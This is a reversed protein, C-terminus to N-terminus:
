RLNRALLVACDEPVLVAIPGGNVTATCVEADGSVELIYRTEQTGLASDFDATILVARETPSYTRQNGRYREAELTALTQSLATGWDSVEDESLSAGTLQWSGDGVSRSLSLSESAGSLEVQRLFVADEEVLGTSLFLVSLDDLLTSVEPVLVFDHEPHDSTAIWQEGRQGIAVRWDDGSLTCKADLPAKPVLVRASRDLLSWWAWLSRQHVEAIQVRRESGRCRILFDQEPHITPLLNMSAWGMPNDLGDLITALPEASLCLAESTEVSEGGQEISLAPHETCGAEPAESLAGLADMLTRARAPTIRVLTPVAGEGNWRLDTGDLEIWRAPSSVRVPGTSSLGWPVIRISRFAEMARMIDAVLHEEVLHVRQKKGLRIWRSRGDAILAGITVVVTGGDSSALTLSPSTDTIGHKSEIAASRKSRLLPLSSLLLAVSRKDAVGPRPATCAWNGTDDFHAAYTDPSGRLEVGVLGVLAHEAIVRTSSRVAAGSWPDILALSVAGAAIAALICLERRSM